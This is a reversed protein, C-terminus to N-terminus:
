CSKKRPKNELSTRKSYMHSKVEHRSRLAQLKKGTRFNVM